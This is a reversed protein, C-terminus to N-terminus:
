RPKIIYVPQLQQHHCVQTPDVPIKINWRNLKPQQFNPLLPQAALCSSPVDLDLDVWGLDAVVSGSAGGQVLRLQPDGQREEGAKKATRDRNSARKSVYIKACWVGIKWMILSLVAISQM